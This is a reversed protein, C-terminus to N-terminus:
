WGKGKAWQGRGRRARKEQGTAACTRKGMWDRAERAERTWGDHVTVQGGLRDSMCGRGRAAEGERLGRRERAPPWAARKERECGVRAEQVACVDTM